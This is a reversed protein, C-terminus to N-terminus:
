RRMERAPNGVVGTYPKVDRIVVAGAGVIAGEGITIRPLITAGTYITAYDEVRVLGALHCGPCLHVGKGLTSEHDVTAGTNIISQEGITVETCIAAQPLIQCGEGISASRAVYASPDQITYPKLGKEYLYDKIRLREKGYAGGIAVAFYTEEARFYKKYWNEFAEEGYYLTIEKFPTEIGKNNEFLAVLEVDLALSEKLMKAQGTAGWFIIQKGMRVVGQM